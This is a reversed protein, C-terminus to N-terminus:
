AHQLLSLRSHPQRKFDWSVRHQQTQETAAHRQKNSHTTNSRTAAHTPTHLIHLKHRWCGLFKARGGPEGHAKKLNKTPPARAFVALSLQAGNLDTACLVRQQSSPTGGSRASHQSNDAGRPATTTGGAAAHSKKAVLDDHQRGARSAKARPLQMTCGQAPALRVPGSRRAMTPRTRHLCSSASAPVSRTPPPVKTVFTNPAEPPRRWHIEAQATQALDPLMSGARSRYVVRRDLFRELRPKGRARVRLRNSVASGTLTASQPPADPPQQLPAAGVSTVAPTQHLDSPHQQRSPGTTELDMELADHENAVGDDPEWSLVNVQQAGGAARQLVAEFDSVSQAATAMNSQSEWTSEWLPWGKWRVLYQTRAGKGRKALISEVEYEDGDSSTVAPPPQTDARTRLPFAGRGDHYAKLRSVNLVPHIQMQPPLNIEYANNNV